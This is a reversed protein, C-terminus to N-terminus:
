GLRLTELPEMRAAKTSPYIGAVTAVAVSLAGAWVLLWPDLSVTWDQAQAGFYVLGGGVIAGATGGVVGVLFAEILFQTAITSRTAGIARRIGIESSRQIVSISMVNAIGVGGVVLALAGMAIVVAQLTKDVQAEAELLNSPVETTVTEPGGLGIGVPLLETSEEATGEEVRVYMTTPNLEADFDAEASAPTIYVSNNATPVLDVRDLVGVVAYEYDNLRVYRIENDLLEFEAALESGIVASRSGTTVDADNLWRGARVDIDLVEPLEPGAVRVGTPLTQFYAAAQETPTVAVNELEVVSAVEDVTPVRFARVEAEEPLTPAGGQGGFTDSATVVILNTGLEALKAQLDGKASESMGVAGVIAAVGLMPGLAILATRTKRAGLGSLAVGLVERFRSM